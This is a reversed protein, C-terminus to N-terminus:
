VKIYKEEHELNRAKAVNVVAKAVSHPFHEKRVVTRSERGRSGSPSGASMSMYRLERNKLYGCERLGTRVVQYWSEAPLWVVTGDDFEISYVETQM